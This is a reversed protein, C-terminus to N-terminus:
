SSTKKRPSKWRPPLPLEEPKAAANMVEYLDDYLHKYRLYLRRHEDNLKQFHYCLAKFDQPQEM